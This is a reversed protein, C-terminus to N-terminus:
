PIKRKAQHLSFLNDTMDTIGSKQNPHPDSPATFHHTEKEVLEEKFNRGFAETLPVNACHAVADTFDRKSVSLRLRTRMQVDTATQDQDPTCTSLPLRANTSPIFLRPHKLCMCVHMMIM